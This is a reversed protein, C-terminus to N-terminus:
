EEVAVGFHSGGIEVWTGLEREKCIEYIRHASALDEIAIGLSKFLTIEDLSTRAPAKGTLLEGIEAVSHDDGILGEGTPILFEGAESLLSERKDAYLRAKAVLESDLERTTPTYAGVANVHAGPAVWAGLVVPDTATTTTCILDAGAVAEEATAVAEVPLGTFRSEREAFETASEAPVSYVRAKRVPRVARM